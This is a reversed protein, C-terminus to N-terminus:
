GLLARLRGWKSGRVYAEESGEPQPKMLGVAGVESVNVFLYGLSPNFSSGSWNGGGLTGPIEVTMKTLGWPTYIGGPLSPGFNDLCYQRSEPTVTTLDDLTM